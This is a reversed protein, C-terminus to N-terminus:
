DAKINAARAIRTFVAIDDRILKDFAEPSTPRPDLGIPGWRQKLEPDGLIRVIEGNLKSVIARPVGSATLLGFWPISEFGPMGAEALTPLDPLLPDRRSSSVGLGVLKGERVLNVANLTPAMFFQVRGTM